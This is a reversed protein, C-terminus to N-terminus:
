NWIGGFFNSIRAMISTNNADVIGAAIARQIWGATPHLVDVVLWGIIFVVLLIIAVVLGRIWKEQTEIRRDKEALMQNHHAKMRTVRDDNLLMIYEVFKEDKPFEPKQIEGGIRYGVAGAIDLVSQMSPSATEKRLIRDVTSKPVGSADALQQNTIGSEDKKQIIGDIIQSVEM